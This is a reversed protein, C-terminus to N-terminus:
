FYKNLCSNTHASRYHSSSSLSASWQPSAWLWSSLRQTISAPSWVWWTPSVWPLSPSCSVSFVCGFSCLKCTTSGPSLKLAGRQLIHRLRKLFVFLCVKWYIKFHIYDSYLKTRGPFLLALFYTYNMDAYMKDVLTAFIFTNICM